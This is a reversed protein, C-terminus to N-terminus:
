SGRPCSSAVGLDSSAPPLVTSMPMSLAMRRPSEVVPRVVGTKDLQFTCVNAMSGPPPESSATPSNAAPLPQNKESATMRTSRAVPPMSASVGGSNEDACRDDEVRGAGGAEDDLLAAVVAGEQLEGHGLDSRSRRNAPLRHNADPRVRQAPAAHRGSGASPRWGWGALMGLNLDVENSVNYNLSVTTIGSGDAANVLGVVGLNLIAVIDIAANVGAYHRGLYPLEDPFFQAARTLYDAPVAAGDSFYAYEAGATLNHWPWSHEIRAALQGYLPGDIQGDGDRDPMGFHGEARLGIGKIDGQLTGGIIWREALNGGILSGHFGALVTELRATLASRSWAPVGNVDNGLVGLVELGSLQGLGVNVRLADVGPKYTKNLTTASFPAFFDNPTFLFTVSHNVPFRGISIDVPGFSRTFRLRDVAMQGTVSGSNWFDWALYRTRYPTVFSSATM